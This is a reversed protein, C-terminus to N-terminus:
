WAPYAMMKMVSIILLAWSWPTLDAWFASNVANVLAQLNALPFTVFIYALLQYAKLTDWSKPM